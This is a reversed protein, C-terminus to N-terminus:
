RGGLFSVADDDWSHGSISWESTSPFNSRCYARKGAFDFAAHAKGNLLLAVRQQDPSWVIEVDCPVHVDLEGTPHDLIASVNYVYVSDVVPQSGLRTDLGYFYAVKGDDEFVAAYPSGDGSSSEVVTPVGMHLTQGM